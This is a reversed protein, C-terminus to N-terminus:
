VNLGATRLYRLVDPHLADRDREPQWAHTYIVVMGTMADNRTVRTRYCRGRDTWEGCADDDSTPGYIGTVANWLSRVFGGPNDVSIEVFYPSGCESDMRRIIKM